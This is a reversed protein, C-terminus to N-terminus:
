LPAVRLHLLHRGDRAPYDGYLRARRLPRASRDPRRHVPGGRHPARRLARPGAWLVAALDRLRLQVAPGPLRAPAARPRPAVHGLWPAAPDPQVAVSSHRPPPDGM